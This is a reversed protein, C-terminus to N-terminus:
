PAVIAEDNDDTIIWDLDDEILIGEDVETAGFDDICSYDILQPPNVCKKKITVTFEYVQEFFDYPYILYTNIDTFGYKTFTDPTRKQSLFKIAINANKLNGNAPYENDAFIERVVETLHLGADCMFVDDVSLLELNAWFILSFKGKYFLIKGEEKSLDHQNGEFYLISKKSSDPIIERYLGVRWADDNEFDRSIPLTKTAGGYDLPEKVFAPICLGGYKEVYDLAMLRPKLMKIIQEIM